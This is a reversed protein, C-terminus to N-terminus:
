SGRGVLERDFRPRREFHRRIEIQPRRLGASRTWLFLARILLRSLDDLAGSGALRALLSGIEAQAAGLVPQGIDAGPACLRGLGTRAGVSDLHRDDRVMADRRDQLYAPVLDSAGIIRKAFGANGMNELM